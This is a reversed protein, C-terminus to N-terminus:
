KTFRIGWQELEDYFESDSDQLSLNPNPWKYVGRSVKEGKVLWMPYGIKPGGLARRKQMEVWCDEIEVRTITSQISLRPNIKIMEDVVRKQTSSLESYNM